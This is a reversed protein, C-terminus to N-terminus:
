RFNLQEIWRIMQAMIQGALTSIFNDDDAESYRDSLNIDWVANGINTLNNIEETNSIIEIDTAHGSCLIISYSGESLDITFNYLGQAINTMPGTQAISGTLNYINFDAACSINPTIVKCNTTSRETCLDALVLSSLIIFCILIGFSKLSKYNIDM